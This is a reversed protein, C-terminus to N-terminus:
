KPVLDHSFYHIPYCFLWVVLQITAKAYLWKCFIYVKEWKFRNKKNGAISKRSMVINSRNWPRFHLVFSIIYKWLLYDNYTCILALCVCARVIYGFQKSVSKGSRSYNDNNWSFCLIQIAAISCKAKYGNCFWKGTAVNWVCWFLFLKPTKKKKSTKSGYYHGCLFIRKEGQGVEIKVQPELIHTQMLLLLWCVVLEPKILMMRWTFINENPFCCLAVSARM